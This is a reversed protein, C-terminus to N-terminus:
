RRGGPTADRQDQHQGQDVSPQEVPRDGNCRSAGSRSDVVLCQERVDSPSGPDVDGGVGVLLRSDADIAGQHRDVLQVIRLIGRKERRDARHGAHAGCEELRLTRQPAPARHGHPAVAAGHHKRM